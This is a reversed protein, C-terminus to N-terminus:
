GAPMMKPHSELEGGFKAWDLASDCYIEVGPKVWDPNDLTGVKLVTVADMAAPESVIPSGCQACFKRRVTNGSDGSDDFYALDGSINLAEKPLIMNLSYAGGSHKQCNKCHCVVTAMPEINSEYRIAGCLCGGNMKEMM